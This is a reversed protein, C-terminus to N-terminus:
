EHAPEKPITEPPEPPEKDLYELLWRERDGVRNWRHSLELLGDVVRMLADVESVGRERFREAALPGVKDLLRDIEESSPRDTM